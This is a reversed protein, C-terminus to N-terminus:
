QATPAKATKETAKQQELQAVQQELLKIREEKKSSLENMMALQEEIIREQEKLQDSHAALRDIEEKAIAPDKPLEPTLIEEPSVAKIPAVATASATATVVSATTTAVSATSSAVTSATASASAIAASAPTSAVTAPKPKTVPVPAVVPAPENNMQTLFYWAVLGLLVLPILLMALRNNAPKKAPVLPKTTTTVKTVREKKGFLGKKAPPKIPQENTTIPPVPRNTPNDDLGRSAVVTSGVAGVTATTELSDLNSSVHADSQLEDSPNSTIESQVSDTAPLTNTNTPITTSPTATLSDFDMNDFDPLITETAQTDSATPHSHPTNNPTMTNAPNIDGFDLNDLLTTDSTNSTDTPSAVAMPTNLSDLDFDDFSFSDEEIPKASTSSTPTANLADLDLADLSFTDMPDKNLDLSQSDDTAQYVETTTESPTTADKKLSFLKM